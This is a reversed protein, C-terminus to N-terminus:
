ASRGLDNHMSFFSTYLVADAQEGPHHRKLPLLRKHEGGRLRCHGAAPMGGRETIPAAEIDARLRDM